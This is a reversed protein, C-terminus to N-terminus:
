LRRLARITKMQEWVTKDASHLKSLVYRRGYISTLMCLILTVQNQADLPIAPDSDLTWFHTIKKGSRKITPCIQAHCFDHDGNGDGENTEYRFAVGQIQEDKDLAALLIYARFHIWDHTTQFTVFPQFRRNEPPELLFYLDKDRLGIESDNLHYRLQHAPITKIEFEPCAEEYTRQLRKNSWHDDKALFRELIGRITSKTEENAPQISM